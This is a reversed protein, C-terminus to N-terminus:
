RPVRQACSCHNQALFGQSDILASHVNTRFPPSATIRCAIQQSM